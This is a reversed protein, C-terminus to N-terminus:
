KAQDIWGKELTLLIDWGLRRYFRGAGRADDDPIVSFVIHECGM